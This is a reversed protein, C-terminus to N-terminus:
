RQEEIYMNAKTIKDGEDCRVYLNFCNTRVDLGVDLGVNTEKPERRRQVAYM